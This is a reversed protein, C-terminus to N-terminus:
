KNKFHENWYQREEEWNDRLEAEDKGMCAAWWIILLALVFAYIIIVILIEM